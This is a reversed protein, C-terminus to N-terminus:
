IAGCGATAQWQKSGSRLSVGLEGAPLGAFADWDPQGGGRVSGPMPRLALLGAGCALREACQAMEEQQIQLAPCSPFPLCPSTLQRPLHCASMAATRAWCARM